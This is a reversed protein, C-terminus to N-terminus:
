SLAGVIAIFAQEAAMWFSIKFTKTKLSLVMSFPDCWTIFFQTLFNHQLTSEKSTVQAKTFIHPSSHPDFHMVRFTRPSFNIIVVNRANFYLLIFSTQRMVARAHICWYVILSREAARTYFACCVGFFREILQIYNKYSPSPSCPPLFSSCLFKIWQLELADM